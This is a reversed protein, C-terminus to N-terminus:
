CRWTLPMNEVWIPPPRLAYIVSSSTELNCLVLLAEQGLSALLKFLEGEAWARFSELSSQLALIAHGYAWFFNSRIAEDLTTLEILNADVSGADDEQPSKQQASASGRYKAMSWHTRLPVELPLLKELAKVVTNWRHESYTHM